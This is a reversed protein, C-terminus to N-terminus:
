KSRLSFDKKRRMWERSFGARLSASNAPIWRKDGGSGKTQAQVWVIFYETLRTLGEFFSSELLQKQINFTALQKGNM